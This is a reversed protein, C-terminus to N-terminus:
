RILAAHEEAASPRLYRPVLEMPSVSRGLIYSRIALRGVGVADVIGAQPDASPRTLSPLTPFPGSAGQDTALLGSLGLREVCRGAAVRGELAKRDGAFPSRDDSDAFFADVEPGTFVGVSAPYASWTEAAALMQDLPPLLADRSFHGAFIQGRYADLAVSLSGLEANATFVAAAVAAVSDVGVLPLKKAYAFSKATTVSIRLGTFSGPGAAVSMLSIAIGSRECEDLAVKLAPALTAATRTRNDLYYSAITADGRLIALSASRGTTEIALQILEDTAVVPPTVDLRHDEGNSETRILSM